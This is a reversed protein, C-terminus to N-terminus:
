IGRSAQNGVFNNNATLPAGQHYRSELTVNGSGGGGTLDTGATVGTITGLRQCHRMGM